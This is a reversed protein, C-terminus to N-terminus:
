MPYNISKEKIIYATPYIGKLAMYLKLAEEKSRFDGVTVKYNPSEFSRYVGAEPYQARIYAAISESRTRAQPSNDYFVRIRYGPVSKSRNASVYNSLATRVASSQSVRIGSGMLTMIDRGVLTTDMTARTLSDLEQAGATAALMLASLLFILRKM